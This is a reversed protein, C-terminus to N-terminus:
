RARRHANFYRAIASPALLTVGADSTAAPAQWRGSGIVSGDSLNLATTTDRNHAYVVEGSVATPVAGGLAASSVTRAGAANPEIVILHNSPPTTALVVTGTIVDAVSTSISTAGIDAFRTGTGLDYAGTVMRAGATPWSLVAVKGAAAVFNATGVAGSPVV